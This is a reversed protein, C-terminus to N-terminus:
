HFCGGFGLDIEGKVVLIVLVSAAPWPFDLEKESGGLDSLSCHLSPSHQEHSPSPTTLSYKAVSACAEQKPSVQLYWVLLSDIGRPWAPTFPPIAEIPDRIRVFSSSTCSCFCLDLSPTPVFCAAMDDPNVPPNGAPDCLPVCFLSPRLPLMNNSSPSQVGVPVLHTQLDVELALSLKWVGVVM